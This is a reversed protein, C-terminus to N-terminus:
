TCWCASQPVWATIPKAQSIPYKSSPTCATQVSSSTFLVGVLNSKIFGAYAWCNNFCEALCHSNRDHRISLTLSTDHYIQQLWVTSHQDKGNTPVNWCNGLAWSLWIKRCNVTYSREITGQAWYAHRVKCRWYLKIAGNPDLRSLVASPFSALQAMATIRKGSHEVVFTITPSSLVTSYTCQKPQVFVHIAFFICLM